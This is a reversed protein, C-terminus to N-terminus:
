TNRVKDLVFKKFDQVVPPAYQNKNSIMYFKREYSPHSIPLIKVDLQLLMDMFPVVAIGFNQAVLGAVVQDESVEYAIKPTENIEAFMHAVIPRLGSTKDFFVYPYDLTDRLDVVYNQALPHDNPVILVLEQKAIATAEFQAMTQPRSAFVVDFTGEALSQILRNSLGIHFTFRIDKDPRSAKFDAALEPVERIGLTRLCGIRIIGNGRSGSKITEIGKDLINLSSNVSAFFQKGFGTLDTGHPGKEFLPVGLEKELQSIAHSLSPQTICLLEATKTYHKIQALKVFYRLHSLNM